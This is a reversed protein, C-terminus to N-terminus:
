NLAGAAGGSTGPKIGWYQCPPECSVIARTGPSRVAEEPRRQQAGPVCTTFLCVHLCEYMCMLYSNVLYSIKQFSHFSPGALYSLLYLM